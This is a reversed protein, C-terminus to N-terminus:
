MSRIKGSSNHQDNIWGLFQSISDVQDDHETNPFNFLELELEDLWLAYKPFIIRGAEFLPSVTILRTIKDKTPMIPIVPLLSHKKLEQIISQGSAKDEILLASPQEAEFLRVIQKKLMPYDLKVRFVNKLYLQHNKAGWTTCVSYDNSVGAKYACDWSQYVIDFSMKGDDYRKIWHSKIIGNGLSEPEQQYQANFAYSGLEIKANNIEALAERSPHLLEGEKRHYIYNGIKYTNNQSAVAPIKLHHWIKKHILHGSLDEKHLRQMVMVIAGHKKHNLRTSFTQDFWKITHERELDSAAQLPTHPDDVILIDAGEGTLTGNVSTAFRFGQKTTLFKAQKNAGQRLITEPFMKKYWTSSMVLRCEQSHKLSLAQSYSAAIIRKDPHQGLIWAPWAVSVITSKLSRPPVNIILRKIEGEEVAKLYNIILELHWNDLFNVGPSVTQFVKILFSKFSNSVVKDLAENLKRVTKKSHM